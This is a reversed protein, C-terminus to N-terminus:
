FEHSAPTHTHPQQSLLYPYVITSTAPDLAYHFTHSHLMNAVSSRNRWTSAAGIRYLGPDYGYLDEASGGSVHCRPMYPFQESMPGQGIYIM